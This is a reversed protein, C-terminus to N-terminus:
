ASARDNGKHGSTPIYQLDLSSLPAKSQRSLKLLMQAAREVSHRDNLYTGYARLFSDNVPLPLTWDPRKLFNAIDQLFAEPTQSVIARKCLLLMARKDFHVWRSDIYVLVPKVTSLAQLLSTGHTDIIFVDALDLVESFMKDHIVECNRIKNTGIWDLLPNLAEPQRGRPPPKIILHIEPCGVVTKIVDRQMHWYWIDPYMHYSFYRRDGYLAGFVYMVRRTRQGAVKPNQLGREGLRQNAVLTDLWPSGIAVPTARKAGSRLHASQSPQELHRQSGLGYCWFYDVEALDEHEVMPWDAYGFFEGYHQTMTPVGAARAAKAIVRHSGQSGCILIVGEKIRQSAESAVTGLSILEGMTHLTFFRFRSEVLPFLDVGSLAFYSRLEPDSKVKEWVRKLALSLGERPRPVPFVEELDLIRGLRQQKWYARLAETDDLVGGYVLTPQGQLHSDMHIPREPWSAWATIKWKGWELFSWLRTLRAVGRWRGMFSRKGDIFDIKMPVWIIECGVVECVHPILRSTLFLNPQPLEFVEQDTSLPFKFCIIRKPRLARFVSQVNVSRHLLSDFIGKLVFLSDSASVWGAEPWDNVEERLLVDYRDCFQQVRDFNKVGMEMLDPDSYFEEVTQYSLGAIQAAFDAEATVAIYKLEEGSQQQFNLLTELQTRTEFFAITSFKVKMNEMALELRGLAEFRSM